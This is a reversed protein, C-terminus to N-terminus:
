NNLFPSMMDKHQKELYYNDMLSLAYLLFLPAFYPEPPLGAAKKEKSAFTNEMKDMKLTYMIELRLMLTLREVDHIELLKICIKRLPPCWSSRGWCEEGTAPCCPRQEEKWLPCCHSMLVASSALASM